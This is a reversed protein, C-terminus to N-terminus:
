RTRILQCSVVYNPRDQNLLFGLLNEFKLEDIFEKEHRKALPRLIDNFARAEENKNLTNKETEPLRLFSYVTTVM